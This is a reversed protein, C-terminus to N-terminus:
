PDSRQNPCLIKNEKAIFKKKRDQYDNNILTGIYTKLPVRILATFRLNKKNNDFVKEKFDQYDTSM